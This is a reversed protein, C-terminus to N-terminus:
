QWSRTGKMYTREMPHFGARKYFRDMKDVRNDDLAIMFVAAAGADKAWNQVSQFLKKGAGNGRAEPNLWWFLEQVVEYAPNFYLPYMLAGAIGVPADDQLALWVGARPNAFMGHLTVAMGDRDFPAVEAVPSAAHFRATMALCASLENKSARRIEIV